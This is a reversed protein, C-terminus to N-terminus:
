NNKCEMWNGHAWILQCFKSLFMFFMGFNIGILVSFLVWYPWFVESWDWTLFTDMKCFITVGQLFLFLKFGISFKKFFFFKFFISYILIQVFDLISQCDKLYKDMSYKLLRLLFLCILPITALTLFFAHTELYILVLAQFFILPYNLFTRKVQTIITLLKEGFFVWYSKRRRGFNLFKLFFVYYMKPIILHLEYFDHTFLIFFVLGYHTNYIFKTIFFIATLHM